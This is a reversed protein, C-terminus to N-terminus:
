TIFRYHKSKYNKDHSMINRELLSKLARHFTASKMSTTLMHKKLKASEIISNKEWLDSAACLIDIENKSLEAFGLDKEMQLILRRIKSLENLNM